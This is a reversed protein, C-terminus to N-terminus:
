IDNVVSLSQQLVLEKYVGDQSLLEWHTGREIVRGDRVVCIQDANQITSLRHAITITTRHGGHIIKDIAAQVLKESESDLASTAEDLLLLRPNRILARAIAIRQKQGGSLQSGKDGVRTSYGQPLSSIFRHINAAKCSNEIDEQTVDREEPIGFSINEAISLDFLVPEQGVLASHSRLNGLTYGQTNVDDLRASGSSPDYWRELMGITTSKGCGSSGVLAIIQGAAAKLSFNGDFIPIDPRRPYAFAVKDFEVEGQVTVPEIGELDPDIAPKRDLVEFCSLAAYKGKAINPVFNAVRGIGIAAFMLSLQVIMLGQFDIMGKEIFRVGAYFSVANLYIQMAQSLAFGISGLYAKRLALKHPYITAKYYKREFYDQKALSAVTRITKIAEGAVEGTEIGAKNTDDEFRMEVRSQYGEGVMIFPLVVFMVLSLAWGHIFAIVIGTCIVSFIEGMAKTVMDNVNKADLALMSTLAGVNNEVMDYFGIEQKMYARFLRARLRETYREGASEFSATQLVQGIFGGIACILFLFAYLNAGEMPGDGLGLTPDVLVGFVKGLVMACCPFVAGTFVCGILGICMLPWEPRMQMLVNFIPNKAGEERMAIEQKKVLSAYVGDMGILQEHTGQEVVKGQSLVIILDAHRITSLRHAIILTTRNQSAIELAKQVQRESQTDLASTAEDLLLIAPNKLIARAIAIRQKQGGSLTGGYQGVQTDYGNPLEMIFDHCDASRCADIMEEESVHGTAGMLLNKRISMNFLVPEQSVVGIHNRLWQINYDKLHHGDIFIDGSLPDYFRQILQVVTSKGSGSPGVIAVRRGPQISVSFESLVPINPRNPYHFTVKSFQINGRLGGKPHLGKTSDIDITPRRDILSFIRHAAASAGAVASLSLPLSLLNMTSVLMSYFVVVVEDGTMKGQRVLQAGYWFSLGYGGFLAAMFAGFQFSLSLGRRIGTKRAAALIDEYKKSFRKQLSFAYVTRIGSFAEEAIAGANAYMDQAEKTFKDYSYGMLGGIGANIPLTALIVLALRWGYVLSVTIGGLVQATMQLCYGFKESIGDQIMQTDTALRTTLSGEEAKDFWEMDQRLIAHMYRRRIERAWLSHSIYSLILNGTGLYVFLLIADITNSLLADLTMISAGLSKLFNALVIMSCPMIIAVGISGVSALIIMLIDLKSAFRFLRHLPVHPDKKRKAKEDDYKKEQDPSPTQADETGDNDLQRKIEQAELEKLRGVKQDLTM